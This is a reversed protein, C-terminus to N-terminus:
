ESVRKRKITCKNHKIDMGIIRACPRCTRQGCRDCDTVTEASKCEACSERRKTKNM